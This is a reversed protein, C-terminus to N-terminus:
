MFSPPGQERGEGSVIHTIVVKYPEVTGDNLRPVIALAHATRHVLVNVIIRYLNHERSRELIFLRRPPLEVGQM